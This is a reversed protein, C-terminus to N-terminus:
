CRGCCFGVFNKVQLTLNICYSLHVRELLSQTLPKQRTELRPESTAKALALISNDTIAQCKVLGVRRLKPLMALQQM